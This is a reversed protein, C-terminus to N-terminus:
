GIFALREQVLDRFNRLGQPIELQRSNALVYNKQQLWVVPTIKRDPSETIARARIEDKRRKVQKSLNDSIAYAVEVVAKAAKIPLLYNKKGPYSELFSQVYFNEKPFIEEFARLSSSETETLFESGIPLRPPERGHVLREKQVKVVKSGRPEETVYKEKRTVRRHLSSVIGSISTFCIETVLRFEDDSIRESKESLHRFIKDFMSLLLIPVTSGQKFMPQIKSILIQKGGDEHKLSAKILSKEEDGNGKILFHLAYASALSYGQSKAIWDTPKFRIFYMLSTLISIASQIDKSRGAVYDLREDNWIFAKRETFGSKEFTVERDPLLTFGETQSFKVLIEFGKPWITELDGPYRIVKSDKSGRALTRLDNMLDEDEDSPDSMDAWNVIKSEKLKSVATELYTKSDSNMKESEANEQRSLRKESAIFMVTSEVDYLLDDVDSHTTANGRLGATLLRVQEDFFSRSDEPLEANELIHIVSLLKEGVESSVDKSPPMAAGRSAQEEHQPVSDTVNQVSDLANM